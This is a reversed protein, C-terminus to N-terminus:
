KTKKSAKRKIVTFVLTLIAVLALYLTLPKETTYAKIPLSYGGVPPETINVKHTTSDTEPTAGPAYVTLTVYYAGPSSFSHHVTPTSTTTKSSDDFNWRYETIPMEHTGNWGPLSSSADFKVSEGVNVTEPIATFEAEPGIPQVAIKFYTSLNWGQVDMVVYMGSEVFNETFENYQNWAFTDNEGPDLEWLLLAFIKPYVPQEEPYTFIRWAPYGGIIVNENGINELIIMVNEGLAYIKKDTKLILRYESNAEVPYIEFAFTLMSTLLITLTIGCVIKRL